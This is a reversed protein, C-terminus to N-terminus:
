QDKDHTSKKMYRAIEETARKMGIFMEREKITEGLGPAIKAIKSRLVRFEKEETNNRRENLLLERLRKYDDELTVNLTTPLEFYDVLIQDATLGYPVPKPEVRVKGKEPKFVSFVKYKEEKDEIVDATGSVCLPSHTTMIFQVNPFKKYLRKLIQRQLKPHLHQEVEDIIIIGSIDPRGATDIPISDWNREEGKNDSYNLKLLYWVLIDLTLKILSKHGDGLAELAKMEDDEKVYIGDPELTIDADDALDLVYRLVGKVMEDIRTARGHKSLSRKRHAKNKTNEKEAASRLRWWATEPDQLPTDYKFLSYVADPAFYDAFKATATTRLGAGYAAVFLKEWFDSFKVFAEETESGDYEQRVREIILQKWETVITKIKWQKHKDDELWIEIEADKKGEEKSGKKNKALKRIFNGELERLLSAASDRDCLGMAIARLITSKGIGNNGAILISTGPKCDSLDIVTEEFCRVDKLRVKTIYMMANTIGLRLNWNTGARHGAESGLVDLM